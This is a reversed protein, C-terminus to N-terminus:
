EDEGEQWLNQVKKKLILLAAAEALAKEKRRLERELEKNKQNSSRVREKMIKAQARDWDNANECAIRWQKIQEPYLGKKRCYQGLEEENLAATELVASFMDTSSWGSPSREARPLLQGKNRAAQRWNYLTQEAIGEEKSIAPISKNDPLFMKKLVSERREDSYRM